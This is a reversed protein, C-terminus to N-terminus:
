GEVVVALQNRKIVTKKASCHNPLFLILRKNLDTMRLYCNVMVYVTSVLIQDEFIVSPKAYAASNM